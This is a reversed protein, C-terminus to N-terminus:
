PGATLGWPRTDQFERQLANLGPGTVAASEREALKGTVRGRVGTADSHGCLSTKPSASNPVHEPQSKHCSNVGSAAVEPDSENGSRTLPSALTLVGLRPVLPQRPSHRLGVGGPVRLGRSASSPHASSALRHSEGGAVLCTRPWPRGIHGAARSASSRECTSHEGVCAQM